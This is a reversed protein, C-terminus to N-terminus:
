ETRLSKVPNAVAAKIAQSSITLLAIIIAVSGSIIFVEWGVNIKYAFDQLWKNMFYWAIPTAILIAVVILMVFDKPLLQIIGTISAGLVKRIGIEKVRQHTAQVTLGFIGLAALLMSLSSFFIFLQQLKSEDRYQGAIMDDVWNITLLKEPYFQRWLKNIFSTVNAQAGPVVRILMGGYQPSKDAIIITPELPDKLSESNFDSIIGVPKTQAEKITQNLEKAHLVKATYATLLSSQQNAAANYQEHHLQMLSDQSMVDEGFSNNLLRGRQLHMGMTKAFDADAIIYWVKITNGTNNPDDIVRSMSGLGQTPKWDSISASVVGAQKLLENKFTAGKGDWSIFDICLLNGKDYGIDKNNLFSVQQWVVILAILVIISISFQVVVLTKRFINQASLKGRVLNGKLTTAPQFSSLICAPYLGTFISILFMIGYAALLLYIHSVFTIQLDHDIFKEVAPLSLQYILTSLVAAIFFFLLSETLFQLILQSRNAGLVKRIGTEKVREIAKATSLNVFNVCAILLLLLAVGSFIYINKYNGKLKQGEAFDSHLYVDKLPQFEFRYPNKVEVFNAYWKNLKRALQAVNSGDKFLVYQQLLSGYQQKNLTEASGEGLIIIDSRFITNYPLDKIVGTIVFSEKDGYSPVNYVIKGVPNENEFFKQRFSETIVVNNSGDVYRRPNGSVIKVDLMKWFSTDAHLANIEIGNPNAESLKLRQKYAYIIAVAEVEPYGTRLTNALGAFSQASRDYLGNGMKNVSIIRYLDKSRSWQKDYSSDDIVVTAVLMCACLGITLGVINIFSYTTNKFLSRWATRLYNKFM